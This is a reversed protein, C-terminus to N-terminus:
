SSVLSEIYDTAPGGFQDWLYDPDVKGLAAQIQAPTLHGDLRDSVVGLLVAVLCADEPATHPETCNPCATM